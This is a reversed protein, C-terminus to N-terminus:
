DAIARAAILIDKLAKLHDESWTSKSASAQVPGRTPAVDHEDGLGASKSSRLREMIYQRLDNANTIGEIIGHNAVSAAEAGGGGGGGATEVLLTSIGFHRQLPGQHVKVNQINEFTITTEHIDMVGRRIRLSRDSMVYWTTDYRLHLAIFALIAPVVMLAIGPLVLIMFIMPSGILLALLGVLIAVDIILIIVWFYLKLYRLFGLSPKFSVPTDGDTTLPLTPPDSPVRFWEVLIRWLGTYMWEAVHLKEPQDANDLTELFNSDNTTM